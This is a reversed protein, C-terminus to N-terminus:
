AQGQHSMVAAQGSGHYVGPPPLRGFNSKRLPAAFGVPSALEMSFESRIREVTKRHDNICTPPVADALTSLTFTVSWCKHRIREHRTCHVFASKVNYSPGALALPASLEIEITHSINCPYPLFLPSRRQAKDPLQLIGEIEMLSIVPVRCLAPNQDPGLYGNIEYIEALHFENAIRDDRYELRGIRQANRFRSTYGQLREKAVGDEGARDFQYRMADADTGKAKLVVAILSPAGATDLLITEKLEYHSSLSALHPLDILSSAANDVPLGRGYDPIVRNMPGGGQRKITVDVWRTKEHLTFEVVVHDFLNATPLMEKISKRLVTNVLVPRASVGLRNLLHVLLFSIDKCDGFRCRAVKEPPSPVQGGVELNVSLYRFEDQVLQIAQEVRLLIDEHSEEIASVIDALAGDDEGTKWAASLAAAVTGWDPCDSVQVWPTSLYWDPTNVETEPVVLNGGEWVWFTQGNDSVEIPPTEASSSKWNMPRSEDFCISFLYEGIQVGQPLTFFCNFYEPLLRPLTEITYCVEMVDSPRVDELVLLLTVWGDIVFRELGEERQLFRMKELNTYDIEMDGRHIKICHLVVSQMRPEFQIQWQSEHQVAQMTELRTVTRVYAQRHEAHFQRNILLCTVPGSYGSKFGPDFQSPIVWTPVPGVRLCKKAMALSGDNTSFNIDDQM